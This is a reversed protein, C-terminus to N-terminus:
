LKELTKKFKVLKACSGVLKRMREKVYFFVIIGKKQGRWFNKIRLLLLLLLKPLWKEWEREREKQSMM